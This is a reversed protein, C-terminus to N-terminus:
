RKRAFCNIQFKQRVFVVLGLNLVTLAVTDGIAAGIAGYKSILLLGIIFSTIQAAIQFYLVFRDMRLSIVMLAVSGSIANVLQGFTLIALPTAAETYSAGFFLELISSGFFIAPIALPLALLLSFRSSKTALEQLQPKDDVAAAESLLPALQLNIVTLGIPILASIQLAVRYHAVNVTDSLHGLLLISQHGSLVTFFGVGGVSLFSYAWAKWLYTKGYAQTTDVKARLFVSFSFGVLAAFAFCLIAIFSTFNGEPIFNYVIVLTAIQALPFIALETTQGKLVAGLGRTRAEVVRTFAILLATASGIFIITGNSANVIQLYWLVLFVPVAILLAISFYIISASIMGRVLDIQGKKMYAAIERVLLMPLGAQLAGVSLLIWSQISTFVGFESPGLFRSLIVTISFLAVIQVVRM